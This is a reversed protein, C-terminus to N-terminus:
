KLNFILKIYKNSEDIEFLFLAYVFEMYIIILGFM